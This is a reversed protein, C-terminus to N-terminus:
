HVLFTGPLAVAAPGPVNFLADGLGGGGVEFCFVSALTASAPTGATIPGAAAGNETITRCAPSGFCGVQGAGQDPCFLGGPDTASATGTTLPSLDIAIVGVRAGDCCNGGGPTCICNDLPCGPNGPPPCPMAPTGVGGTPCDRTIGTSGPATCAMGARPGRDCVGAVCRPCPQALNGTVYVDSLLAVTMSSAGTTLDLTGSAPANWTNLVCLTAFPTTPSPIPLPAGFNCGVDTCDPATSNVPPAISTPGITCSSGTCSLAFRSTAGDPSLGESFISAGGGTSLGGCTLNKILVNSGDLTNGCVGGPAGTTFELFAGGVSMTTTTSTSTTTSTTTTTTTGGLTTTTTTTSPTVLAALDLVCDDVLAQVTASDNTFQCDNPDKAELKAFCGKTPDAGGTYKAAAKDVCGDANPDTPKGPTQAKAQCKLLGALLKAVCKKKGVGCKTQDIPGPDIAAVLAGVCRDVAAEAAATDDFTICDNTSKSELKEFCGKAPSARRRVQGDGEHRLRRRQSRGAQGADRGEPPVQAAREGEQVHVEDQGGPM